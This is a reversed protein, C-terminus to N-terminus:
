MLGGEEEGRDREGRVGDETERKVGENPKRREKREGEGMKGEKEAWSGSGGERRGGERIGTIIEQRAEQEAGSM